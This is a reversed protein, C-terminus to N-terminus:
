GFICDKLPFIHHHMQYLRNLLLLMMLDVYGLMMLSTFFNADFLNVFLLQLPFAQQLSRQLFRFYGQQLLDLMRFDDLDVLNFFALVVYVEDKLIALQTCQLLM